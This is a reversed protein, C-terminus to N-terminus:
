ADMLHAFKTPLCNGMLKYATPQCLTYAVVFGYKIYQFSVPGAEIPDTM